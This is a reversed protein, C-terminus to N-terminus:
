SIWISFCLHGACGHLDIIPGSAFLFLPYLSFLFVKPFNSIKLLNEAVSLSASYWMLGKKKLNIKIQHNQTCLVANYPTAWGLLDAGEGGKTVTGPAPLRRRSLGGVPVM